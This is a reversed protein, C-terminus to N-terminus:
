ARRFSSASVSSSFRRFYLGVALSIRPRCNPFIAARSCPWGAWFLFRAAAVSSSVVSRCFARAASSARRSASVAVARFRARSLSPLRLLDSSLYLGRLPRSSSPFSRDLRAFVDEPSSPGADSSRPLRCRDRDGVLLELFCRWRDGSLRLFSSLLVCLLDLRDSSLVSGASLEDRRACFCSSSASESGSSSKIPGAGGGFFGRPRPASRPTEPM